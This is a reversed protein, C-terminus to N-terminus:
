PLQAEAQRAWHLFGRATADQSIQQLLQRALASEGRRHHIDALALEAQWSLPRYEAEQTRQLVNELSLRADDLHGRHVAVQGQVLDFFQLSEFAGGQRRLPQMASLASAAEDIRDQALLSQALLAYLQLSDSANTPEESVDASARLLAEATEARGAALEIAALDISRVKAQTERGMQRLADIAQQQQERAGEYDGRALLLHARAAYLATPPAPDEAEAVIRRAEQWHAEAQALDGWRRYIHSLNLLRRGLNRTDGLHECLQRSEELLDRAAQLEGRQRQLNGLNNLASALGRPDGLQRALALADRYTELAGDLDGRRRELTGLNNLATAQIGRDGTDRAMELAQRFLDEAEEARRQRHRLLALNHLSRAVDSKRDISRALALAEEYLTESASEDGLRSMLYALNNLVKTEGARSGLARHADLATEYHTKADDLQGRNEHINGLLNYADAQGARDQLEGLSDAAQRVTTEAEDLRGLRWLSQAARFQARATIWRAGQTEGLEIARQSATLSHRYDALSEAAIAEELAIRGDLRHPEPLSQLSELTVLADQGRGAATQIRALQLGADVDDPHRGHLTAYIEAAQVWEGTAKRLQGEVRMQMLEPLDDSLEFARRAVLAAESDRGLSGLAQAMSAYIRPSEPALRGAAEFDELAGAADFLSLKALGEVFLRAAEPDRPMATEVADVSTTLVLGLQNRVRQGVRNILAPLEGQLGQETILLRNEGSLADQLRLDLRLDDRDAFYTGLIVLEVGSHRYITDLTDEAYSSTVPLDLELKMRAVHEGSLIRLTQSAELEMTLMEVLATSLWAAEPRGTLNQFGLVAVTPRSVQSVDAVSSDHSADHRSRDPWMQWLGLALVFLAAVAAAAIWGKRKQNRWTPVPLTVKGALCRAVENASQFRGSPELELCRLITKEWTPDLDPAYKSPPTPEEHLRRIATVLSDDGEFPFRGTVMEYILVGLAYIDTAPSITEGKIQEPAMYAPTGLTVGSRTVSHRRTADEQSGLRALGFDTIVARLRGGEAPVLFINSSKLDRHVIGERHAAELGDAIQRIIPAAQSPLMHGERLLHHTLTEGQLLEMSLFTLSSPSLPDEELEHESRHHRFIDFSRCVSAHTVRRALQVERRFREMSVDDETLDPRLIKVAVFGGLELDEVKYVEGMGGAALFEIIRFRECLLYGPALMPDSRQPTPPTMLAELPLTDSSTSPSVPPPPTPDNELPALAEELSAVPNDLFVDEQSDAQLMREVERRMDSDDCHADLHAPRAEPPLDLADLFIDEIKQWRDAESPPKM